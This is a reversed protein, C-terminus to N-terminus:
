NARESDARDAASGRSPFPWAVVTILICGLVQEVLSAICESVEIGVVLGAGALGAVLV